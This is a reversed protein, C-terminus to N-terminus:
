DKLSLGAEFLTRELWEVSKDGVNRLSLIHSKKMLSIHGLTIENSNQVKIIDRWRGRFSWYHIITNITKTQHGNASIEIFLTDKTLPLPAYFPKEALKNKMEKFEEEVQRNYANITNIASFYQEKTIKDQKNEM